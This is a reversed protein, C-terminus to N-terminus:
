GWIAGEQPPDPSWSICPEWPGGSDWVAGQDSGMKTPSVATFLCDSVCVCLGHFVPLLLGFRINKMAIRGLFVRRVVM